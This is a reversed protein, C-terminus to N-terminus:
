PLSELFITQGPCFQSATKKIEDKVSFYLIQWGQDILTALIKFERTLRKADSTLFAEDLIFFGPQKKLIIGALAIRITMYLQDYTGQSLQNAQLIQGDNKTVQITEEEPNFIVKRYRGETIKRFLESILSTEGFLETIRSEEDKEIREFISIAKIALDFDSQIKQVFTQLFRELEELQDLNNVTIQYNEDLFNGLPLKAAEKELDSLTDRHQKLKNEIEKIEKGLTQYKSQTQELQFRDFPIEVELKQSEKLKSIEEKWFSLSEKLDDKRGWENALIEMKTSRTKEFAGKEKLCTQFAALDDIKLAQIQKKIEEEYMLTSETEQSIKTQLIKLNQNLSDLKIEHENTRIKMEEWRSKFDAIEKLLKLLSNTELGSSAAMELIAVEKGKLKNLTGKLFIFKTLFLFFIILSVGPTLWGTWGPKGFLSVLITIGIFIGLFITSVTKYLGMNRIKTEEEEKRQQFVAIKQSLRELADKRHNLPPLKAKLESLIEEKEKILKKKELLEEQNQKLSSKLHEIKTHLRVVQHYKEETFSALKELKNRSKKLGLLATSLRTYREKKEAKSLEEIEKKRKERIEQKEILASELRDLQKEKGQERYHIIRQLIDQAKKKEEAVKNHDASKSLSAASTPNTLRGKDQLAKMVKKIQDTKVGTLKDTIKRLYSSEKIITLDSDRIVLVNRLDESEIGLYHSLTRRSNIKIEQGDAELIVYGEPKEKVRDLNKFEKLKRSLFMKLIADVTLTKGSENMGMILQWGNKPKLTKNKLPGYKRIYIEKIRM